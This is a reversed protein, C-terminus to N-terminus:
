NPFIYMKINQISLNNQYSNFEVIATEVFNAGNQFVYFGYGTASERRKSDETWLLPLNLEILHLIAENEHSNQQFKVQNASRQSEYQKNTQHSLRDKKPHGNSKQPLKLSPGYNHFFNSTSSMGGTYRSHGFTTKSLLKQEKIINIVM